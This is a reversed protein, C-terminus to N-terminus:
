DPKRQDVAKLIGRLMALEMEDMRVRNFLRRLRPMTQRPVDPNLYEIDILVRELHTYFHELMASSAPKEEWERLTIHQSSKEGALAAVRLEYAVVQVAMALNLSSYEEDTPINLHLHCKQLEENTLGHAERGFLIAVEGVDAEALAQQAAERPSLLPWRIRRGRASTGVVLSTGDLAEDLTECVVANALIDEAHAARHVAQEDPFTKPTVLYLKYLGMNKMARAVAGINGPHTTNVLVIRINALGALAQKQQELTFFGLLREAFDSCFVRFEIYDGIWGM